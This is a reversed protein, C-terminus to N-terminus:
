VKRLTLIIQNLKIKIIILCGIRLLIEMINIISMFIFLNFIYYNYIFEM